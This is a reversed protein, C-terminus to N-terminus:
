QRSFDRGRLVPRSYFRSIRLRHENRKKLYWCGLIFLGALVIVLLAIGVAEEARIYGRRGSAFYVNFDGRPM